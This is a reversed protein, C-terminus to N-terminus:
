KRKKRSDSNVNTINNKIESYAKANGTYFKLKLEFHDNQQLNQFWSFLITPMMIFIKVNTENYCLEIFFYWFVLDYM